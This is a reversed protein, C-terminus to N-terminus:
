SLSALRSCIVKHDKPNWTRIFFNLVGGMTSVKGDKEQAWDAWFPINRNLYRNLFVNYERDSSFSSRSYSGSSVTFWILTYIILSVDGGSSLIDIGACIITSLDGLSYKFNTFSKLNLAILCSELHIGQRDLKFPLISM